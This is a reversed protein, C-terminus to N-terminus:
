NSDSNYTTVIQEFNNLFSSSLTSNSKNDSFKMQKVNNLLSSTITQRDIDDNDDDVDNDVLRNKNKNSNKVYYYEDNNSNTTSTTTTSITDEDNEDERREDNDHDDDDNVGRIINRNTQKAEITTTTTTAANIHDKNHHNSEYENTSIPIHFNEMTAATAASQNTIIPMFTAMKLRISFKFNIFSSILRATPNNEYRKKLRLAIETENEDIYTTEFFLRINRNLKVQMVNFFYNVIELFMDVSVGFENRDRRLWNIHVCRTYPSYYIKGISMDISELYSRTDIFTIIYKGTM